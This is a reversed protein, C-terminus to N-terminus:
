KMGNKSKSDSESKVFESIEWVRLTDGGTALKKGDPSIAVPSLMPIKFARITRLVKLTDTEWIKATLSGDNTVFIKGSPSISIGGAGSQKKPKGLQKPPTKTLDWATLRGQDDICAFRTFDPNVAAPGEPGPGSFRFEYKVTKTKWDWIRSSPAGHEFFLTGDKSFAMYSSHRRNIPVGDANVDRNNLFVGAPDAETCLKPPQGGGIVIGKGDPTFTIPATAGAFRIGKFAPLEDGSEVSRQQIAREDENHFALYKGDESVVMRAVSNVGAGKFTRVRKKASLDWLHIEGDDSGAFLREGSADWIISRVAANDSHEELTLLPKDLKQSYVRGPVTLFLVAGCLLVSRKFPTAM